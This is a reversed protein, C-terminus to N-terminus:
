DNQKKNEKAILQEIWAQLTLNKECAAIKASHHFEPRVRIIHLQLKDKKERSKGM